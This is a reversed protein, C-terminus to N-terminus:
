YGTRVMKIQPNGEGWAAWVLSYFVDSDSSVGETGSGSIRQVLCYIYANASNTQIYLIKGMDRFQDGTNYGPSSDSNITSIFSGANTTNVVSGVARANYTTDAEIAQTLQDPTFGLSAPDEGNGLIAVFFRIQSDVQRYSRM